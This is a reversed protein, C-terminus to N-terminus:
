QIREIRSIYMPGFNNPLYPMVLQGYRFKHLQFYLKLPEFSKELSTVIFKMEKFSQLSMHVVSDNQIPSM